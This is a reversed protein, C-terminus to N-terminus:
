QTHEPCGCCDLCLTHPKNDCALTDMVPRQCDECLHRFMGPANAILHIEMVTRRHRETAVKIARAVPSGPRITRTRLYSPHVNALAKLARERKQTANLNHASM